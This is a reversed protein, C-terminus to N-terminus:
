TARRWYRWGPREWRPVRGRREASRAAQTTGSGNKAPLGPHPGQFGAIGRGVGSGPQTSHLYLSAHTTERKVRKVPRGGSYRKADPTRAPSHPSCRRKRNKKGQPACLPRPRWVFCPFRRQEGCELGFGGGREHHANQLAAARRRTPGTWNSRTALPHLSTASPSVGRRGSAVRQHGEWPVRERTSPSLRVSRCRAGFTGPDPSRRLIASPNPGCGEPPPAAKLHRIGAGM